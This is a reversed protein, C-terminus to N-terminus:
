RGNEPSNRSGGIGSSLRNAPSRWQSFHSLADIGGLIERAGELREQLAAREGEELGAARQEIDRFFEEIRRALAWRDVIALLHERSENHAEKERREREEREWREVQAKWRRTEEEAELRAKEVLQEVEPVSQVLVRRVTRFRHPLEGPRREVWEHQWTVGSQAAYARLTLRGTPLYHTSSWSHNRSIWRHHVPNLQTIPIYDGNVYRVEVPESSEYLTLGFAVDKVFVLTPADPSWPERYGLSQRQPGELQLPPRGGYRGHHGLAVRHGKGELSNFLSNAVELATDLMPKSVVVDVLLRKRPRIYGYETFRDVEFCAKAGVVLAHQGTM